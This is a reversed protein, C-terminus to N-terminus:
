RILQGNWRAVAAANKSERSVTATIASRKESGRGAHENKWRSRKVAGKASHVSVAVSVLTIYKRKVKRKIRPKITPSM